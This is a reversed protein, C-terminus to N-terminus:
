SVVEVSDAGTQIFQAHLIARDPRNKVSAAIFSVRKGTMRADKALHLINSIDGLACTVIILERLGEVSNIAARSKKEFDTPYRQATHSFVERLHEAFSSSGFLDADTHLSSVHKIRFIKEKPVVRGASLILKNMTERETSSAAGIIDGGCLFATYYKEGHKFSEIVGYAADAFRAVTEDPASTDPLDFLIIPAIGSADMRERVYTEDYRATMKWDINKTSDGPQYPRFGRTEHGQLIAYRDAEEDLLNKVGEQSLKLTAAIGVPYVKLEPSSASRVKLEVGIFIDSARIILGGFAVNGQVPLTFAYETRGNKYKPSGSVLSAGPPLIDECDLECGEIISSVSVLGGQRIILPSANRSLVVSNVKEKLASLFVLTRILIIGILCVSIAFVATSDLLWGFVLCAFACVLLCICLPTLHM